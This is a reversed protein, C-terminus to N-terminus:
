HRFEVGFTVGNIFVDSKKSNIGWENSYVVADSSRQINDIFKAKYGVTVALAKTIKYRAEARLEAMPSFDDEHKSDVSTYTRGNIPRNLAGPILEEGFIGNQRHDVINYSLTVQTDLSFDWNGHDRRWRLGVSPGVFQNDTEHDVSTRGLISGLGEFNFDDRFRLYSVGYRLQMDDRRGRDLKHGRDLEHTFMLEVGDLEVRNRVDVQDFFVNFEYLDGFDIFTGVVEDDDVDGDGNIDGLILFFTGADGDLDDAIAPVDVDDFEDDDEVGGYNGIYYIPGTQTGASPDGNLVYDRFGVFYDEPASFNVAVSGFGLAYIDNIDGVTDLRGDGDADIPSGGYYPDTNALRDPDSSQSTYPSGEGAGFIGGSNVEPGDLVRAMWGREGDSHGFEYEEGWGLEAQPTADLISNRIIFSDPASETVVDVQPINVTITIPNGDGDVGTIDVPVTVVNGGVEQFDVGFSQEVLDLNPNSTPNNLFFNDILIQAQEQTRDSYVQESQVITDPDGIEVREGSVFLGEKKIKLFYGAEKELRGDLDLDAPEFWRLDNDEVIGELGYAQAWCHTAPVVTCAVLTTLIFLRSAFM